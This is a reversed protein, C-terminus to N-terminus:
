RAAMDRVQAEAVKTLEPDVSLAPAGHKERYSSIMTRAAAADVEVGSRGLDLYFPPTM